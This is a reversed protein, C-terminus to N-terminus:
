EVMLGKVEFTLKQKPNTKVSHQKEGSVTDGAFHQMDDAMFQKEAIGEAIITCGKLTAPLTINYVRFHAAIIKGNGANIEFWGGKPQTVKIVKGKITTSIRTKKGMFAEVAWANLMATSDPKTGFVTGHPLPAQKHALFFVPMFLAFLVTIVKIMYLM